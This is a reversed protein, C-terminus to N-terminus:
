ATPRITFERKRKRSINWHDTGCEKRQREHTQRHTLCQSAFAWDKKKGLHMTQDRLGIIIAIIIFVAALFALTLEM